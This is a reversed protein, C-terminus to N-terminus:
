SGKHGGKFFDPLIEYELISKAIFLYAFNKLLLFKQRPYGGVM